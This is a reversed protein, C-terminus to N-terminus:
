DSDWTATQWAEQEYEVEPPSEFPNVRLPRLPENHAKTYLLDICTVCLGIRDKDGHIEVIRVKDGHIEVKGVVCKDKNQGCITCYAPIPM